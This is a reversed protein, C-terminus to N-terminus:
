WIEFLISFSVFDTFDAASLYRDLTSLTGRIKFLVCSVCVEFLM